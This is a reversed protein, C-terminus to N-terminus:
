PILNSFLYSLSKERLSKLRENISNWDIVIEIKEEVEELSSILRDSLDFLSLLSTFRAMGRDRNGLVLFPKNFLISFVCGHFSDTVVFKAQIFGQLWSEVSQKPSLESLKLGKQQEINIHYPNYHLKKSIVSIIREIEVNEDLVYCLLEGPIDTMNDPILSRYDTQELLMTPDLVVEAYQCLYQSCLQKASEERVSIGSFLSLLRKCEETEKPTYDWQDIGFSAGYVVRKINWNRAFDLYYYSIHSTYYKRWVQDSGVVIADLYLKKINLVNDIVYRPQIHKLIFPKINRGVIAQVKAPPYLREGSLLSKVFWKFSGILLRLVTQEKWGQDLVIAEHGMRKLVTQLAYAQLIGGYNTHLPLTLIGVKM